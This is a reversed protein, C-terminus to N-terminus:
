TAFIVILPQFVLNNKAKKDSIQIKASAIAFCRISYMSAIRPNVIIRTTYECIQWKQKSSESNPNLAVNKRNRKGHKKM